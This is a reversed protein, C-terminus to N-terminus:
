GKLTVTVIHQNRYEDTLNANELVPPICIEFLFDKKSDFILHNLKIENL